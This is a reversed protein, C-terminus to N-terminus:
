ACTYNKLVPPKERLSDLKEAVGKATQQSLSGKTLAQILIYSYARLNSSPHSQLGSVEVGLARKSLCNASASLAAFISTQSSLVEYIMLKQTSLRMKELSDRLLDRSHDNSNEGNKDALKSSM